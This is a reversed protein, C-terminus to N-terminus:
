YEYTFKNKIKNSNLRKKILSLFPEKVGIHNKCNFSVEVNPAKGNNLITLTEIFYKEHTAFFVRVGNNEPAYIIRKIENKSYLESSLKTIELYAQHNLIYFQFLSLFSSLLLIILLSNRLTKSENNILLLFILYFFPIILYLARPIYYSLLSWIFIYTIVISILFLLVNINNNTNRKKFSNFILMPLNKLYTVIIILGGIFGILIQGHINPVFMTFSYLLFLKITSLLNPTIPRDQCYPFLAKQIIIYIILLLINIGINIIATKTNKSKKFLFLLASIFLIFLNSEYGIYSLILFTSSLALINIPPLLKDNPKNTYLYSVSLIYLISPAMGLSHGCMGLNAFVEISIPNIMFSLSTFFPINHTFTNTSINFITLLRKTLIFVCLVNVLQLLYFIWITSNVSLDKMSHLLLKYIYLVFTYLIPTRNLENLPVYINLDYRYHAFILSWWDDAQIPIKFFFLPLIFVLAFITILFFIQSSTNSLIKKNLM